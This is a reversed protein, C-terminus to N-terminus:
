AAAGHKRRAEAAQARYQEDDLQGLRHMDALWKLQNALPSEPSTPTSPRHAGARRTDERQREAAADAKDALGYVIARLYHHNALPLSLKGPMALMQEMGEAWLAPTAPRRQGSREDKCVEGSGVWGMLDRVLRVARGTRLAQKAPKFLRLYSVVARGLVPEMGALLMALRKGDDDAFGAEIPFRSQCCPCTLQM